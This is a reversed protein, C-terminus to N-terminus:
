RPAGQSRRGFRMVLYDILPDKEVEAVKAGWRIMKDVERAWGTRDLRQQEVIDTQHCVLCARAFADISRESAAAPTEDSPRRNWNTALYDLLRIRDGQAVNAGWRIMKDLEREWGARTLRQQRILDAEHCTVCTSRVLDAGPGSPLDAAGQASLAIGFHTMTAFVLALRHPIASYKHSRNWM